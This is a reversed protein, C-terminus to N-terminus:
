TKQKERAMAAALRQALTSLDDPLEERLLEGYFENLQQAIALGVVNGFPVVNKPPDDDHEPTDGM